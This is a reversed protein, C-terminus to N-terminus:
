DHALRLTAMDLQLNQEFIQELAQNETHLLLKVRNESLITMQRIVRGMLAPFNHWLRRVLSNKGAICQVRM